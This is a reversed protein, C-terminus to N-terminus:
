VRNNNNNSNKNNIKVQSLNPLEFADDTKLGNSLTNDTYNDNNNNYTGMHKSTLSCSKSNTTPSSSQNSPKWPLTKLQQTIKDPCGLKNKVHPIHVHGQLHLHVHTSDLLQHWM